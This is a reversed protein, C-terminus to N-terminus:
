PVAAPTPVEIAKMGRARLRANFNALDNALIPRLAAQVDRTEKALLAAVERQQTTPAFDSSTIGGALYDLQGGLRVPWRVGDQGRGTMRRDILRDEVAVLKAELSDAATRVEAMADAALQVGAGGGRLAVLQARVHEITNLMETATAHDRQIALMARHQAYLDALTAASHPDKRVELARTQTQGAASLRVSYRGPPMLLTIAGFGPAPRTGDAGLEFADNFAPNTRMRAPEPADGQLNWYVRNLGARSTDRLTRVVAGASDLIEITVPSAAKTWYNIGAGYPPNQGATQDDSPNYNATIDRWRYAARPTFLHADSAQVEPTLQQLPGLDDLIWFGRGYTGVVLDNFHEQIVLGYVPAAPMNNNFKQWSDGDNFSVYLANETGAYLLGRRVPDERIVHAYSLMSRPIGTVVLDWTKGFDRTRYIWPDFNGEQHADLTFWATGADWRSPEVHQISGWAAEAPIPPTVDTWTKGSDRTVHVRGDNSGTWIVGRRAPSEALGMLTGGYEVGINDPTLGGSIQQKTKDNRTLDPSIVRWSRGGNTSVHVHQSGTYVKNRDHPSIHFPFNWIFRYKLDAAPHGGTSLPWVEVNQGQRRHTDYRVVIGGRAGSGSASSWILNTDVPDPTAFGSEGGLVGHWASRQITNGSRSHSPGRYSPGDQRNGYVYYPVRNDVTVHYMQAIPLNVRLWTRARTTTIAVNQDNGNIMRNPDTPDIWLDHQDGGPSALPPESTRPQAAAAGFGATRNTAGGDLTRSFSACMFYAEDPNDPSVEMRTYYPQRCALNRDYSVVKWSVGGDESRWLEGNDTPQGNWPVGDGTEILAYVRNPNSQAIAVDIKGVDHVPLGNGRLRTWTSGGDHSVHIGSGPGGSQRGWTRILLQWTAAFLKGPNSPDMVVDIAGTNEDVFLVHEWTEGGDRTRFVGRQKQPGYSHGQAAVYVIDPNTPHIVIRGIRGSEELGMRKWTRGGDTSKFVGAGVSIHSRIHPEGTGAWVIEPNSRAVALAGISHVDQGDFVPEWNIGADTSKWIGGSAAGAYYTNPDGVVGAVASVRNGVPGIYRYRMPAMTRADFAGPEAVRAPAAQAPQRMTRPTAPQRQAALPLPTALVLALVVPRLSAM